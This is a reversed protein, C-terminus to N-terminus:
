FQVEIITGGIIQSQFINNCEGQVTLQAKCTVEGSLNRAVAQIVTSDTVEHLTLTSSATDEVNKNDIQIHDTAKAMEAGQYWTIQPTPKGQAVAQFTAQDGQSLKRDQPMHPFKPPQM